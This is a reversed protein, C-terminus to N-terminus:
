AAEAYEVALELAKEKRTRNQGFWASNLRSATDRGLEHDTLYTIANFAQWWSGEAFEAGPQTSLVEFARNANKSLEDSDGNSHPFIRNIYEEITADDFRKSALFTSKERYTNSVEHALGLMEKVYDEDWAQNHNVTIRYSSAGRLSMAMTNKCVVRIDTARVEIAMGRKHPNVLLLYQEVFDDPVVEYGSSSIKALAWIIKGNQLSGATHMEMSGLEVFEKFFSFAENNQLPKWNPGVSSLYRGDTARVLAMQNPVKIITGDDDFCYEMPLKKVEWDLNAAKLMEDVSLNNSVPVGLGHWPVEGAYAMTEIEHSM